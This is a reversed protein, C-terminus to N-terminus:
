GESSQMKSYSIIQNNSLSIGAMSLVRSIIESYENNNWIPNISSGPSYVPPVSGGVYNWVADPPLRYYNLTVNTGSPWGTSPYLQFFNGNDVCFPNATNNVNISDTLFGNIKNQPRPNAIVNNPLVVNIVSGYGNPKIVTGNTNLSSTYSTFFPSLKDQMTQNIMKSVPAIPVGYRYNDILGILYNFYQNQSLNFYYNFEGPSLYGQKYKNVLNQVISYIDDISLM